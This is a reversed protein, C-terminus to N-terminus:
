TAFARAVAPSPSTSHRWARRLMKMVALTALRSVERPDTSYRAANDFVAVVLDGLEATKHLKTKM